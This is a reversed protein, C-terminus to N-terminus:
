NQEQVTKIIVSVIAHSAEERCPAFSPWDNFDIIRASGDASIICDGGYVGLDLVNAAEDCIEKLCEVSFPFEEPKGNVAEHGFKSHGQNYPYFWHFFDTGAVGYFKVLDGELHENIVVRQIDRLAYEEM